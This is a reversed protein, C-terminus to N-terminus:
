NTWTDDGKGESAATFRVGVFAEHVDLLALVVRMRRGREEGPATRMWRRAAEFAAFLAAAGAVKTEAPSSM